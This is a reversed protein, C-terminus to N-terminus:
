ETIILLWGKGPEVPIAQLPSFQAAKQFDKIEPALIKAKSPNLSLAKWDINLKIQKKNKAWSAISVLTQKGKKVYATALINKNHTKVPCNPVWYGKMKSDQIGFDDWAKWIPTPDGAWPLRNTMGYIMGRWPNGGDQLMEGMIGFPIGSMEILWFDPAANYNFYEGFWIRNIYPFHELYLNASNAFGDRVNFQNASHLDILAGKNQDLIKRVRKMVVRDFAVDDIYLGDIGVQHVLWNLGELYYNHWRSVGSNIVAADKLHPVLWGAIYDSGLHEQLWAFGGGPGYSLIEDGLSRLAFIESAINSLERVTYYIKVKADKKHAEDIYAKMENPKLFPYNIFPNIDTAHHVNITNAGKKTIEDIPLYKHFYRHHWHSKTDIPKFPTVLLSFIFHLEEGPAITGPGSHCTVLLTDKKTKTKRKSNNSHTYTLGGKGNNYWSPPMNLPKSLYFNTNLPRHYNKDRFSIQLGANVDGLWLSDQNHKQEWKWAFTRARSGGKQGMGMTYKAVDNNMPIELRIDEVNVPTNQNSKVTIRFDLFGDFEMQAQCQIDFDGAKSSSEWAVMGDNAKTINIENKPPPDSKTLENIKKGDKEIVLKIPASLIERKKDKELHTMEPAFYSTIQAPLGTSDLTVLRGLCSITSSNDKVNLKLPIYPEVITDDLAIESNLWRMRSHKWPESDGADALLKDSIEISIDISKKVRHKPKTSIHVTGKYTGPPIEKPIQVGMWLAQIKGKKVPCTKNFAKGTWDIGSDNFCTLATEPITHDNGKKLPTFTVEVDEIDSKFAYLGVQFAYFENRKAKGKFEKQIGKKIWRYPIDDTMRIPFSRDEPFLLYPEEQHQNVLAEVEKSTAIVEMPYFSNFKDISQFEIIDARPLKTLAPNESIPQDLPKTLNHKQVWEAENADQPKLYEVKPYHKNGSTHYPLYYVYYDGPITQPQFVLDGFERNITVSFVNKIQTNTKADKLILRKQDPNHDRRRWPIHAWVADSQTSVRLVVRHNGLTEADWSGTGYPVESDSHTNCSIGSIGSICFILALTITLFTPIRGKSPSAPASASSSAQFQKRKNKITM